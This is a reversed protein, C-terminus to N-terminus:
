ETDGVRSTVSWAAIPCYPRASSWPPGPSRTQIALARARSSARTMPAPASRSRSPTPISSSEKTKLPAGLGAAGALEELGSGGLELRGSERLWEASLALDASAPRDLLAAIEAPLIGLLRPLDYGVVAAGDLSLRRLLAAYPATPTDIWSSIERGDRTLTVALTEVATESRIAAVLLVM